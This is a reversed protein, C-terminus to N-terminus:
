AVGGERIARCVRLRLRFSAAQLADQNAREGLAALNGLFGDVGGAELIGSLIKAWDDFSGKKAGGRPMGADVWKRILTLCATVLESRHEAAWQSLNEIKFTRQSPDEDAPRLRIWVTRRTIEPSMEVNNGTGMWVQSVPFKVTTNTGLLRDSWHPATLTAAFSGL